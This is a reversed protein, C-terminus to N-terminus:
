NFFFFPFNDSRFISLLCKCASSIASLMTFSHVVNFIDLKQRFSVKVRLTHAKYEAEVSDSLASSWVIHNLAEESPCVEGESSIVSVKLHVTALM